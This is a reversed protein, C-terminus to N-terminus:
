ANKHERALEKVIIYNYSFYVIASDLVKKLFTMLSSPPIGPNSASAAVIKINESLLSEQARKLAVMTQNTASSDQMFTTNTMLLNLM